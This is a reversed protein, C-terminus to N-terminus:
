YDSRECPRRPLNRTDVPHREPSRRAVIARLSACPQAEWLSSNLEFAQAVSHSAQRLVSRPSARLAPETSAWRVRDFENTWEFM